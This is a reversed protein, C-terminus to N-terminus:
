FGFFHSIKNGISQITTAAEEAQHSALDSLHQSLSDAVKNAEAIKQQLEIFAKEEETYIIEAPKLADSLSMRNEM